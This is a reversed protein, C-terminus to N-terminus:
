RRLPGHRIVPHSGSLTAGQCPALAFRRVKDGADPLPLPEPADRSRVPLLLPPAHKRNLLRSAAM